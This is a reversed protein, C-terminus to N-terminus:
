HFPLYLKTGLNMPGETTHSGRSSLRGGMDWTVQLSMIWDAVLKWGEGALM